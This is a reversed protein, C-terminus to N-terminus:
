NVLRAQLDPNEQDEQNDMQGLGVPRALLDLLGKNVESDEEQHVLQGQHGQLVQQEKHGLCDLHDRPVKIVLVDQIAQHALKDLLGLHGQAVM